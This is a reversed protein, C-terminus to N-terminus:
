WRYTIICPSFTLNGAGSTTFGTIELALALGTGVKYTKDPTTITGTVAVGIAQSSFDWTPTAVETTGGSGGTALTFTATGATVNSSARTANLTIAVVHAQFPIINELSVVWDLNSSSVAAGAALVIHTNSINGYGLDIDLNTIDLSVKLQSSVGDIWEGQQNLIYLFETQNHNRTYVWEPGNLFTM